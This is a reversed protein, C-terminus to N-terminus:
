TCADHAHGHRAHGHRAHMPMPMPMAMNWLFDSLDNYMLMDPGNDMPMTELFLGPMLTAFLRKNLMM